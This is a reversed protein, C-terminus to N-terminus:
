DDQDDIKKKINQKNNKISSNKNKDIFKKPYVVKESKQHKLDVFNMKNLRCCYHSINVIQIKHHIKKEIDKYTLGSPNKLILEYIQFM